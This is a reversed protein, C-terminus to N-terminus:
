VDLEDTSIQGDLQKEQPQVGNAAMYGHVLDRIIDGYTTGTEKAHQKLADIEARTFRVTLHPRGKTPM